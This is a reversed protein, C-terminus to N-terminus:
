NREKKGMQSEKRKRCLKSRQLSDDADAFGENRLKNLLNDRATAGTELKRGKEGDSKEKGCFKVKKKKQTWSILILTRRKRARYNLATNAKKRYHHSMKKGSRRGRTKKEEFAKGAVM